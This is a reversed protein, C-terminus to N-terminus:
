RGVVRAAHISYTAVGKWYAAMPAKKRAWSLQAKENAQRSLDRLLKELPVRQALPLARIAQAAPLELLPNIYGM